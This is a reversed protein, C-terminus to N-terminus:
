VEKQHKRGLANQRASYKSVQTSIRLQDAANVLNTGLVAPGKVFSHEVEITPWIQHLTM